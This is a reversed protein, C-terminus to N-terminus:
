RYSFGERSIEASIEGGNEGRAKRAATSGSRTKQRDDTVRTGTVGATHKLSTETAYHHHMNSHHLSRTEAEM